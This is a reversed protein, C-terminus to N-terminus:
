SLKYNIRHANFWENLKTKFIRKPRNNWFFYIKVSDKDDFSNFAKPIDKINCFVKSNMDGTLMFVKQNNDIQTKM